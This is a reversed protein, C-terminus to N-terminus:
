PAPVLRIWAWGYFPYTGRGPVMDARNVFIELMGNTVTVTGLTYENFTGRSGRDVLYSYTQPTDSSYGWYYRLNAHFYLGAYLTYTGNPVSAYFQEVPPQENYSAFVGTYGRPRYYFETWLNDTDILDDANTTTTLVPFQNADNAVDIRIPGVTPTITPPLPTNTATPPIPTNTNTPLPTNTATPPL